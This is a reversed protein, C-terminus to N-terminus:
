LNLPEEAAMFIVSQTTDSASHPLKHSGSSWVDQTGLDYYSRFLFFWAHHNWFPLSTVLRNKGISCIRVGFTRYTIKSTRCTFNDKSHSINCRNPYLCRVVVPLSDVLVPIFIITVSNRWLWAMIERVIVELIQWKCRVYGFTSEFALDPPAEVGIM